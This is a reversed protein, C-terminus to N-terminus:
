WDHGVAVVTNLGERDLLDVLDATILSAVYAAPDDPKDTGGYGLMDPALVGLGAASLAPVIRAWDHSTSPFGHLLLLTRKGAAAPAFYYSYSVGRSTSRTKYLSQDM